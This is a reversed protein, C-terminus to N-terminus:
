ASGKCSYVLKRTIPRSQLGPERQSLDWNLRYIRVSAVARGQARAAQAWDACAATQEAAPQTAFDKMILTFNRYTRPLQGFQLTMAHGAPDVTEAQWTTLTSTRLHSFLRWGTLPWAEIGLFGCLVFAALFAGVFIRAGLPARDIRAVM